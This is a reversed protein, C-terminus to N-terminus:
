IKKAKCCIFIAGIAGVLIVPTLHYTLNHLPDYMCGIQMIIMPVLGSGLSAAFAIWNKQFLARRQLILYFIAAQTLLGYFIIELSCYLRKGAMSTPLASAILSYLMLLISSLILTILITKAVKSNSEILSNPTALGASFFLSFVALLVLSSFELLFRPHSQLQEFANSRIGGWTNSVLIAVISFAILSSILAIIVPSYTKGWGKNENVLKKVLEINM